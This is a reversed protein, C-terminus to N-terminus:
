GIFLFQVKNPVAVITNMVGVAMALAVMGDIRGTEKGKVFKRNESPDMSVTANEACMTLVPHMGHRLKTALLLSELERIAPSMSFYGQAFERFKALEQESFGEAELWPKLYRFNWKDFGIVQVDCENFVKRMHAAVYKYEISSGPVAILHGQKAWMDYPVRDSRSKEALGNAPIWFTSEVNWADQYQDTLVLATLDAVASLDLGGYVKRRGPGRLPPRGNEKWVVRSVFPSRAEIRQNLILNRYSAEKSPMRKADLAQKLVEKKNMFNDFHPNAQRITSEAFPDADLDATYLIVKVEPDAGTLADDILLSLLDSDKPAQTSIVVSLPNEQAAFATELAEFLESRAGRVQGLEDHVVLVPSKGFSTSVEASLAKYFTGREACLLEKGTDRINILGRLDPSMRVIKAALEFLVAAQERSQAASYLQSNIVSPPGVLFLLLLFACFTTKANKRAMSLIFMRTPSDFIDCLWQKQEKTLRVPKGVEKGEPICCHHEIWAAADKGTFRRPPPAAVVQPVVPVRTTRRLVPAARKRLTGM